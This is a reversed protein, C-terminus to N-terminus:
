SWAPRLEVAVDRKRLAQALADRYEAFSGESAEYWTDDSTEALVVSVEAELRQTFVLISDAERLFSVSPPLRDLSLVAPADVTSLDSALTLAPLDTDWWNRGHTPPRLGERRLSEVAEAVEEVPRIPRGGRSRGTLPLPQFLPPSIQQPELDAFLRPLVEALCTQDGAAYAALAGQYLASSRLDALRRTWEDRLRRVHHASHEVSDETFPGRRAAQRLSRGLDMLEGLLAEADPRLDRYRVAVAQMKGLEEIAAEFAILREGASM